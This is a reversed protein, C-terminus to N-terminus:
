IVLILKLLGIGENLFPLSSSHSHSDQHGGHSLRPLKEEEQTKAKM